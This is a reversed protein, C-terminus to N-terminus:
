KKKGASRTSAKGSAASAKGSRKGLIKSASAKNGKQGEQWKMFEKFKAMSMQDTTRKRSDKGGPSPMTPTSKKGSTSKKGAASSKGKSPTTRTAVITKSPTYVLVKSVKSKVDAGEDSSAARKAKSAAKKKGKAGGKVKPASSSAAPKKGYGKGKEQEAIARMSHVTTNGEKFPYDGFEDDGGKKGGAKISVVGKGEISGKKADTVAAIDPLTDNKYNKALSHQMHKYRYNQILTKFEDDRFLNSPFRTPNLKEQLMVKFGHVILRVEINAYSTFCDNTNARRMELSWDNLVVVKNTLDVINVSSFKKKFDTVADKTFYAQVYFYGDSVLFYPFTEKVFCKLPKKHSDKIAWFNGDKEFMESYLLKFASEQKSM